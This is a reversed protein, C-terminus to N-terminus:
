QQQLYLNTQLMKVATCAKSFAPPEQVPVPTAAAVHGPLLGLNLGLGLAPHAAAAAIGAYQSVALQQAGLMWPNLLPASLAAAASLPGLGAAVPVAAPLSAPSVHSLLQATGM